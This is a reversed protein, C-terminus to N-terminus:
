DCLDDYTFWTFDLDGIKFGEGDALRRTTMEHFVYVGYSIHFTLLRAPNCAPM